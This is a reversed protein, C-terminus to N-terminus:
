QDVFCVSVCSSTTIWERARKHAGRPTGFRDEVTDNRLHQTVEVTLCLTEVQRRAVMQEGARDLQTGRRQM